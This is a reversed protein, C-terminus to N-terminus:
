RLNPAVTLKTSNKESPVPPFRGGGWPKVHQPGNYRGEGCVCIHRSFYIYWGAAPSFFNFKKEFVPPSGGVNKRGGLRGGFFFLVLSTATPKRVLPNVSGLNNIETYQQSEAAVHKICHM